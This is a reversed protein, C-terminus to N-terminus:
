NKQYKQKLHKIIHL